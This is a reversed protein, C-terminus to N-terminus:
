IEVAFEQINISEQTRNLIISPTPAAINIVAVNEVIGWSKGLETAVIM